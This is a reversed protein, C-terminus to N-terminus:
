QPTASYRQQDGRPVKKEKKPINLGIPNEEKKMTSSRNKKKKKARTGM